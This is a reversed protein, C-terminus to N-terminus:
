DSFVVIECSDRPTGVTPTEGPAVCALYAIWENIREMAMEGIPEYLRVYTTKVGDDWQDVHAVIKRRSIGLIDHARETIASEIRSPSM